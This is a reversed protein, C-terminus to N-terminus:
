DKPWTEPPVPIARLTTVRRTERSEAGDGIRTATIDTSHTLIGTSAGFERRMEIQVRGARAPASGEAAVPTDVSALTVSSTVGAGARTLTRTGEMMIAGGFASAGPIRVPRAGMPESAEEAVLAAVLSGILERQRDAPMALLPTELRQVLATRGPVPLNRRAAAIDAVARCLRTWIDALGNIEMVRGARDLHFVLTRGALAGFGSEYLAGSAERTDSDVALIVVEARYGTEERAFRVLREMHFRRETAGTEIRETVVRLPAGLPPAFAPAAPAAVQLMAAAFLM